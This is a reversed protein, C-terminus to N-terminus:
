GPLDVIVQGRGRAFRVEGGHSRAVQRVIALGLGAGPSNAHVKHFRGFVDEEQGIPVGAGEDSVEITAGDRHADADRRVLVKVAGRGHSLANDLLNRVLDRLDDAHGRLSTKDPVDLELTRGQAELLPLVMAAAERIVRSLNIVPLKARDHRHSSSEKRALDLLQTVIQAMQALDREVAPWDLTGTDRARQLRLGLVSLPTRLEHAADATMQREAAYAAALRDLAKNAANVLPLIERPLGRVSLRKDLEAPGVAEAERSARTVPRLSWWTIAWTLALALVAFPWLVLLQESAEEFLSDVLTKTGIGRHAVVLVYGQPARAAMVAQEDPQNAIFGVPAYTASKPIAQFPLPADLNASLSAVHGSPDYLTYAFRGSRDAYVQRWAPPLNLRVNGDAAIDIGGLLTRAQQQLTTAQLDRVRKNIEIGYSVFSAIVGAAFILIMAGLLRARLSHGRSM